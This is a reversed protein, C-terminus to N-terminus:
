SSLVSLVEFYLGVAPPPNGVPSTDFFFLSNLCNSTMFFTKQLSSGLILTLVYSELAGLIGFDKSLKGALQM